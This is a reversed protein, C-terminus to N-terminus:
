APQCLDSKIDQVLLVSSTKNNLYLHIHSIAFNSPKLYKSLTQSRYGLLNLVRKLNYERRGLIYSTKPM